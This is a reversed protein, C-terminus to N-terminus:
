ETVISNPLPALCIFTGGVLELKHCPTGYHDQPCSECKGNTFALVQMGILDKLSDPVEVKVDANGGDVPCGEPSAMVQEMARAAALGADASAKRGARYIRDSCDQGCHHQNDEAINVVRVPGCPTEVIAKPQQMKLWNDTTLQREKLTIRDRLNNLYRLMAVGQERMLNQEDRDPVIKEFNIDCLFAHLRCCKGKLDEYENRLKEILQSIDTSRKNDM